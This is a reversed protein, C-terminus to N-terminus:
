RAPRQPRNRRTITSTTGDASRYPSGTGSTARRRHSMAEGLDHHEPRYLADILENGEGVGTDFLILGDPHDILYAYVAAPGSAWALSPDPHTDTLHLRAVRVQDNEM